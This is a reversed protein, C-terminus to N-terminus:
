VKGYQELADYAKSNLVSNDLKPKLDSLKKLISDKTATQYWRAKLYRISGIAELWTADSYGTHPVSLMAKVKGIASKGADSFSIDAQESYPSILTNQLQQSYPGHKYWGFSYDGCTVGLEQLLFVAKQAKLRDTFDYFNANEGFIEKFVAHIVAVDSM